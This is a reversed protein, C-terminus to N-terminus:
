QQMRVEIEEKSGYIQSDHISLLRELKSKEETVKKDISLIKQEDLRRTNKWLYVTAKVLIYGWM